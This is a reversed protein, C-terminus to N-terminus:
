KVEGELIGAVWDSPTVVEPAALMCPDDFLDAYLNTAFTSRHM